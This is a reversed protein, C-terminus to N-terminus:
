LLWFRDKDKEPHRHLGVTAIQNKNPQIHERRYSNCYETSTPHLVWSYEWTGCKDDRFSMQIGGAETGPSEAATSLPQHPHCMKAAEKGPGPEIGQSSRVSGIQGRERAKGGTRAAQIGQGRQDGWGVLLWMSLTERVTLYDGGKQTSINPVRSKQLWSHILVDKRFFSGVKRLAKDCIPLSAARSTCSASCGVGPDRPCFCLFKKSLCSSRRKQQWWSTFSLTRVEEPVM